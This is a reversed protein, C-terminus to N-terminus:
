TTEMREFRLVAADVVRQILPPVRAEFQTRIALLSLAVAVIPFVYILPVADDSRALLGISAFAALQLLGVAASASAIALWRSQRTTRPASLFAFAIMFAAFPYLPAALRQHLELRFRAPDALFAPDNPPPAIIDILPREAPGLNGVTPASTFQSLDFAYRDFEVISNDIATSSADGTRHLSGQELVLVLGNPGDIIRGRESVFTQAVKDRGDHIFIGHLTGGASRDRVHLTLGREIATFRGPIAVSTVIDANVKALRERLIRTSLPGIHTSIAGSILSVIIALFFLPRFVQWTSVGAASMVVLESDGNLRNLTYLVALFLALPATVLLFTPLTLGVIGAYSLLTQGQTTLMDFRRLAQTLWVMLTLTSAVALFAVAANLFIYRGLRGM